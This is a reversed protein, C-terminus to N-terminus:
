TPQDRCIAILHQSGQSTGSFGFLYDGPEADPASGGISYFGGRASNYAAVGAANLPFSLVQAADGPSVNFSGFSTGSGLDEFVAADYANEANLPGAPTTVDFLTYTIPATQSFRTARLIVREAECADTLDFTFYNRAINETEPNNEFVWGVLYNDNGPGNADGGNVWTGQNRVGAHFPSDATSFAMCGSALTAVAMLVVPLGLRRIM